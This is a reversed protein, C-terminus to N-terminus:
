FFKRGARGGSICTNVEGVGAYDACAKPLSNDAPCSATAAVCAECLGACNDVTRGANKVCECLTGCNGSLAKAEECSYLLHRGPTFCSYM